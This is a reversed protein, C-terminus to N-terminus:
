AHKKAAIARKMCHQTQSNSAATGHGMALLRGLKLGGQHLNERVKAFRDMCLVVHLVLTLKARNRHDGQIGLVPQGASQAVVSLPPHNLKRPHFTGHHKAALLRRHLRAEVATVVVRRGRASRCRSGGPGNQAVAIVVPSAPVLDIARRAPERRRLERDTCNLFILPQKSLFLRSSFTASALRQLVGVVVAGGWFICWVKVSHLWNHIGLRVCHVWAANVLSCSERAAFVASQQHCGQWASTNTCYCPQLAKLGLMRATCELM